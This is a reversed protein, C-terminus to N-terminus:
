FNACNLNGIKCLIVQFHFNFRDAVKEWESIDFPLIEDIINLLVMVMQKSYNRAGQLRGCSRRSGRSGGFGQDPNEMLMSDDQNLYQEDTSM